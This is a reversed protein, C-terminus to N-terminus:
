MVDLNTGLIDTLLCDKLSAPMDKIFMTRAYKDGWMFYDKKFELYDPCCYARDAKCRFDKETLEPIEM